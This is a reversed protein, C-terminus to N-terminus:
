IQCQQQVDLITFFGWLILMTALYTNNSMYSNFNLGVRILDKREEVNMIALLLVNQIVELAFFM